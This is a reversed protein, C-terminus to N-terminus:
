LNTKRNDPGAQTLVVLTIGRNSKNLNRNVALKPYRRLLDRIVPQHRNFKEGVIYDHITGKSKMYGLTKRCEDRIVGGKGSSGYGHIFTLVSVHNRQADGIVELMTKIAQEATPRGEELNVTRHLFPHQVVAPTDSRAGCFPCHALGYERENGCIDCVIM